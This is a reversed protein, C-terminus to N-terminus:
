SSRDTSSSRDGIPRGQLLLCEVRDMTRAAITLLSRRAIRGRHTGFGVARSTHRVAYVYLVRM